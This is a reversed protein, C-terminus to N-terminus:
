CAHASKGQMGKGKKGQHVKLYGDEVLDLFEVAGKIANLLDQALQLTLNSKVVIRLMTRDASTTSFLPLPEETLHHPFSMHYGAVYWHRESVVHQVDIDDYNFDGEPNLYGAVVPLASNGGDTIVFRNVGSPATLARLGTRIYDAVMM